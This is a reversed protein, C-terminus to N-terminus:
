TALVSGAPRGGAVFQSHLLQSGLVLMLTWELQVRRLTQEPVREIEARYRAVLEADFLGAAHLAAPSLAEHIFEPAGDAFFWSRLPTYFPRKQRTRIPEPLLGRATERMVAKETLGRMKHAPPLTALFDVVEHDLFPVRAEVGAAMSARDGILLIWSPLRSELELALSADLPHLRQADDPALADFGSPAELVPRVKRGDPSLLRARDLGYAFTTWMDLWPPYVGGFARAVERAPERQNALMMEVTGEPLGHWSYLRRYVNPRLTRLGPRDFVRRMKDARFCDYGGLLEDAGEGTLVVPFGAGRVAHALAALPLALPFQLPLETSWIMAPLQSVLDRTCVLTHNPAGLSRALEGAFASEDHEASDFGISFTSPPDGTAERVLASILSSDLGGSLYTAVRVDARLHEYTKRVLLERLEAAAERFSVRRAEGAHPFRVRWYRRPAPVARGPEVALLHGPRLERVGAFMTRPPCPYSLSFLDDLSDRDIRPAVLGSALIAKIESAFLVYDETEAYYLPKIGLRDRILLLKRARTDWGAIAFMGRLRTAGDEGSEELVHPVLTTDCADRIAHGGARLEPRLADHNYLEGNYVVVFRNECGFTPQQGGKPDMIALRVAGLQVDHSLFEGSGDPGRHQIANLM